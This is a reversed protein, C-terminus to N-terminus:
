GPAIDRIAPQLLPEVTRGIVEGAMPEFQSFFEDIPRRLRTRSVRNQPQLTAKRKLAIRMNRLKQMQYAQSIYM